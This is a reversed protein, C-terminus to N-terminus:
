SAPGYKVSCGYAKTATKEIPKGAKISALAAKVYNTSTPINSGDGSDIAGQYALKGDATIIFMHPSTQANYTRGIKGSQDRIYATTVFGNKEQWAKAKAEDYNGQAGAYGASNISIWVAGDAAALKQTDRMNGSQYHQMAIPCEPNVWELVVVKGKFDSLKITKGNIDQATFDPAAQGIDVARATFAALLAAAFMLSKAFLKM